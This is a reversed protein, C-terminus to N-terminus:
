PANTLSMLLVLVVANVGASLLLATLGERWARGLRWSAIAAALGFLVAPVLAFFVVSVGIWGIVGLAALAGCAVWAASAGRLAPPRFVGAIGAFGALGLLAIELLILGPLPWLRIEGPRNGPSSLILVPIAFCALVAVAALLWELTAAVSPSPPNSQQQRMM